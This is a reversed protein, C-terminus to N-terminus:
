LREKVVECISKLWEVFKAEETNEIRVGYRWAQHADSHPCVVSKDRALHLAPPDQLVSKPIKLEKVLSNLNHDTTELRKTSSLSNQLLLACKLGCEAAYFLLLSAAAGNRQDAGSFLRRHAARLESVGAHIKAM